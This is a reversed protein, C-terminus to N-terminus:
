RPLRAAVVWGALQLGLSFALLTDAVWHHLPLALLAVAMCALDVRDDSLLHGMPRMAAKVREPTVAPWLGNLTPPGFVDQLAKPELIGTLECLDGARARGEEVARRRAATGVLSVIASLIVAIAAAFRSLDEFSGSGM